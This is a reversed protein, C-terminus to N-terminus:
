HRSIVKEASHFCALFDNLTACLSLISDSEAESILEKGEVRSRIYDGNDPELSRFLAEATKRDRMTFSLKVSISNGATM